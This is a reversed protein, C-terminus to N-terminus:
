LTERIIKDIAAVQRRRPNGEYNLIVYDARDMKEEASLQNHMRAEIAERSTRDRLLLRQMREEKELYVAIIADMQKDLGYEFLIASELIVYPTQQSAAWRTFDSMVRPHVLTNLKSLATSDSFVIDAIRKKDVVGQPNCIDSGLLEQLQRVFAPEQYYSAAHTDAIFCPVGLAQFEKLVTTKGCGIGGTLGIHKM